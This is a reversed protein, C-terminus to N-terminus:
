NQINNAYFPHQIICKHRDKIARDLSSLLQPITVSIGKIFYRSCTFCQDNAMCRNSVPDWKTYEKGDIITPIEVSVSSSLLSSNHSEQQLHKTMSIKYREILEYCKPDKEKSKYQTTIASEM